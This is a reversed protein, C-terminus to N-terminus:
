DNRHRTEDNAEVAEIFDIFIKLFEEKEHWREPHFQLGLFYGDDEKFEVAEIVGDNAVAVVKLPDAVERIAQHHVSNIIVRDKGLLRYLRSSPDIINMFHAAQGTESTNAHVVLDGVQKPIDQYLTGGELVNIWQMGRCIALIPLKRKRAERYLLAEAEDRELVFGQSAMIPDEGYHMPCIDEGGSLILGDIRELIQSVSEQDSLTPILLPMAGSRHVSEIYVDDVKMIPAISTKLLSSSIGITKM